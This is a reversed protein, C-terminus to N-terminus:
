IVKAEEHLLRVLQPVTEAVEGKLIKGPPRSPPMTILEVAVRPKLEDATLGLDAPSQVTITKKKAAMIGKLSALRPTNLGKQATIVVPLSGEIVEQAGEIDRQALFTKDTVELKTVVSVQPMDMQEAVVSPVQGNDVGIAHKGFLILDPSLTSCVKALVTGIVFSDANELAQDQVLVASDAGMALCTRLGQTATEAGAGVVIVEGGGLKEKIKLAEEVAFEDYPNVVFAVGTLDVTKGDGAIKMKIATDPVYKVCVVIKM